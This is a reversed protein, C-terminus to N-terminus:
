KEIKLILKEVYNEVNHFKDLYKKGNSILKSKLKFSKEINNIKYSINAINKENIMFGYKCRKLSSMMDGVNTSFIICKHKIAELILLSSSESKSTCFFYDAKKLYNDLRKDHIIRVNPLNYNKKLEIIKKKYKNQTKWTNGVLYFIFNKNNKNFNAIKLFLEFNKVPSFNGAALIIM